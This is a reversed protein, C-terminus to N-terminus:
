LHRSGKDITALELIIKPCLIKIFIRTLEQQTCLQEILVTILEEGKWQQIKQVFLSRDLTNKCGKSM